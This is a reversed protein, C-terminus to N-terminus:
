DNFNVRGNREWCSIVAHSILITPILFRAIIGLVILGYIDNYSLTIIIIIFMVFVNVISLMADHHFIGDAAGMGFITPFWFQCLTSLACTKFVWIGIYILGIIPIIYTNNLLGYILLSVSITLTTIDIVGLIRLPKSNPHLFTM